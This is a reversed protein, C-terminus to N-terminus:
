LYGCLQLSFFVEEKRDMAWRSLVFAGINVMINKRREHVKSRELHQFYHGLRPHERSYYYNKSFHELENNNGIKKNLKKGSELDATM